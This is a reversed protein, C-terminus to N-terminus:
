NQKEQFSFKVTSAFLAAPVGHGTVDAIFVGLHNEESHFIDYFDGGIEGSPLYKAYM